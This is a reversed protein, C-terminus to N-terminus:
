SPHIKAVESRFYALTMTARNGAIGRYKSQGSSTPLGAWIAALNNMFKQQGLDGAVFDPFGAEALLVDALRDQLGSTFRDSRKAGVKNVVRRLTDPIFQYRGIAHPQGPTAAIWDYIEGVTMDTPRKRPKIKAGHQVADYGARPSEAQGIINRIRHVATSAPEIMVSPPQVARIRVPYPALLGGEVNGAFLSAGKGSAERSQFLPTRGQGFAGGGLLSGMEALGAVPLAWMLFGLIWRM